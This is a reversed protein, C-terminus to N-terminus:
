HFQIQLFQDLWQNHVFIPVMDVKCEGIEGEHIKM